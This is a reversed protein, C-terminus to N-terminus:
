CVCLCVSTLYKWLPFFFESTGTMVVYLITCINYLLIKLGLEIHRGIKFPWGILLDVTYIEILVLLINLYVSLLYCLLYFDGHM